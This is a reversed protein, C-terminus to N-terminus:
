SASLTPRRLCIDQVQSAYLETKLEFVVTVFYTSGRKIAVADRRHRFLGFLKRKLVVTLKIQCTLL